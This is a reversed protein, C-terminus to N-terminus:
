KQGGKAPELKRKLRTEMQAFEERLKERDEPGLKQRDAIKDATIGQTQLRRFQAASCIM